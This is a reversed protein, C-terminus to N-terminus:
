VDDSMELIHSKRTGKSKKNSTTSHHRPSKHRNKSSSDRTPHTSPKSSAANTRTRRPSPEVQKVSAESETDSKISPKRVPSQRRKPPHAVATPTPHKRTSNEKLSQHRTPKGNPVRIEVDAQHSKRRPKETVVDEHRTVKHHSTRKNTQHVDDANEEIDVENRKRTSRPSRKNSSVAKPKEEEEEEEEEDDDDDDDDDDENESEAVKIQSKRKTTSKIRKPKDDDDNDSAPPKASTKRKSTTTTTTIRKPPEAEEEDSDHRKKKTKPKTVPTVQEEVEEEEEEESPPPTEVRKKTPTKKKPARFAGDDGDDDESNVPKKPKPRPKKRKASADNDEDDDDRDLRNQNLLEQVVPDKHYITDDDPKADFIPFKKCTCYYFLKSLLNWSNREFIYFALCEFIINTIRLIFCIKLVLNFVDKTADIRTLVSNFMSAFYFPFSFVLNLVLFITVLTTTRRDGYRQNKNQRKKCCFPTLLNFGLSFIIPKIILLVFLVIILTKFVSSLRGDVSCHYRRAAFRSVVDGVIPPALSDVRDKIFSFSFQKRILMFTVLLAILVIWTVSLVVQILYPKTFIKAWTM